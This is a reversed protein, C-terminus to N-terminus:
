LLVCQVEMVLRKVARETAVAEAMERSIVIVDKVDGDERGRRGSDECAQALRM